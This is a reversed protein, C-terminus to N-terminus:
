IVCASIALLVLSIAYLLWSFHKLGKDSKGDTSNLTISIVAAPLFVLGAAFSFLESVFQHVAFLDHHIM